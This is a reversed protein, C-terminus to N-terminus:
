PSHVTYRFHRRICQITLTRTYLTCMTGICSFLNILFDNFIIANTFPFAFLANAVDFAMSSHIRSMTRLSRSFPPAGHSFGHYVVLGFFHSIFCCFQNNQTFMMLCLTSFLFAPRSVARSFCAFRTYLVLQGAINPRRQTNVANPLINNQCGGGKEAGIMNRKEHCNMLQARILDVLAIRVASMFHWKYQYLINRPDSASPGNKHLSAASYLVCCVAYVTLGRLSTQEKISKRNRM